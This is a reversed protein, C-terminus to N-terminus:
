IGQHDQMYRAMAAPDMMRSDLHTMVWLSGLVVIAVIISFSVLAYLRERAARGSDRVHLFCVAQIVFQVCALTMLAALVAPRSLPAHVVGYAAVSLVLSVVFGLTYAHILERSRHSMPAHTAHEIM